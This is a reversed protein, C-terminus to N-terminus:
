AFGKKSKPAIYELAEERSKVFGERMAVKLNFLMETLAARQQIGSVNRAEQYSIAVKLSHYWFYDNVIRKVLRTFRELSEQTSAVGRTALRDALSLVAIDLCTSGTNEVFRLRSSTTEGEKLLFGLGMHNKVISNLYKRSKRDLELRRAIADAMQGGVIHHGQFRIRGSPEIKMCVAKGVDHILAAFALLSRRPFGGPVEEFHESVKDAGSRFYESTSGLIAELFSLVEITHEWVGLHHYFNQPVGVIAEIEPIMRSLFGYKEMSLAKQPLNGGRLLRLVFRGAQGGSIKHMERAAEELEMATEDDEVFGFEGALFIATLVSRIAKRVSGPLIRRLRRKEIDLVGGFFDLMNGPDTDRVDIALSTCSYEKRSVVERISQGRMDQVILTRGPHLSPYLFAVDGGSQFRGLGAVTRAKLAYSLNECTEATNDSAIFIGSSEKGLFALLPYLGILYNKGRGCKSLVERVELLLPDNNIVM